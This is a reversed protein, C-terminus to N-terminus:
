QTLGLEQGLKANQERLQDDSLGAKRSQDYSVKRLVRALLEPDEKLLATQAKSTYGDMIQKM